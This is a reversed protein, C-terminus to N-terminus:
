THQDADGVQGIIVPNSKDEVDIVYLDDPFTSILLISGNTDVDEEAYYPQHPLPLFGLRQPSEPQSIDYITLDRSTTIYMYDGVFNAGASDIALPVNTIWEVRDSSTFHPGPGAADLDVGAQAAPAAVLAVAAAISVLTKKM